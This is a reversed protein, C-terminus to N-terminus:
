GELISVIEVPFLSADEREGGVHYAELDDIHQRFLELTEREKDTLLTRNADLLALILFNNPLIRTLMKRKWVEAAGSEPNQAADIHPGYSEFIM